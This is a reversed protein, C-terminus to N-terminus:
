QAVKVAAPAAAAAPATVAKRSALSPMASVMSTVLSAAFPTSQIVLVAAWIKAQSWLLPDTFVAVAIAAAWLTLMLLTEDRAMALGKTFAAKDECKPTRFFPTSKKYTSQWIALGISYTLAMGAIASGIRQKWTCQVRTSYLFLHHVLKAVFIAITPLAFMTLPFDFSFDVLSRLIPYSQALTPDATMEAILAATVQPWLVLGVSWFLGFMVFALYFGDAIWPLWGAVYHYRQAMSLKSDSWPLLQRWHGKMIQMGGFAWRFRQKKYGLYTDPTLGQGFREQVYVSEYGAEHFRLGLETDECICWEGWGGVEDMASRRILTMTGHQIIANDENRAVMGIDFFGAYEWNIWEKFPDNEWERHDQPAQVWAVKPNDFYPLLSKLWDQRVVYDADVLGIVQADAATQTRAFNLAGAKYGPWKPLHFFKIRDGMTQRLREVYEEVPKWVKEDKTNNDIVLVELNPYDVGVLSDITLKVMDPPENCIALHLSVKPFSKLSDATFPLQRRRWRRVFSLETVELANIITVTVLLLLSPLLLGYMWAAPPAYDQILPMAVAWITFSAGFQVIAAFFLKGRVKLHERRWFFVLLPMVAVATAAAALAPWQAIDTVERTWSFKQNRDADWLGWHAGVSHEIAKKWPQDFAEIVNYDIGRLQAINLFNRLFMAQNSLSPVAAQRPKGASPWGVETIVIPKGPYTRRLQNYRSLLYDVSAEAPVGEWYPLIHVAIFDVERVLEPYKLWVHWPEATSVATRTKEKFRRLYRILQQVTVDGRLIAENGIIARDVNKHDRIMKILSSLEAENKGLRTDVWAGAMVSIGYKRALQPVYEMGDLASYTRVTAVHGELLALDRDIDEISPLVGTMPDDDKQNPSFSVGKIVGTWPIDQVPRNLYAWVGINALAILFLVVFGYKRM